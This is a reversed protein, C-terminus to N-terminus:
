RWAGIVAAGAAVSLMLFHVDLNGKRLREWADGAADWGGCLYALVYLAMPIGPSLKLFEAVFGMVGFLLCGAALVALLRWEGHDEDTAFPSHERSAYKPWCASCGAWLRSFLSASPTDSSM